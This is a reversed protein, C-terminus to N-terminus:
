ESCMKEMELSQTSDPKGKSSAVKYSRDLLTQGNDDTRPNLSLLSSEEIKTFAVRSLALETGLVTLYKYM